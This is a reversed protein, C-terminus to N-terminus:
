PNILASQVSLTWWFWCALFGRFVSESRPCFFSYAAMTAMTAASLRQATREANAYVPVVVYKAYMTHQEHTPGGRPPHTTDTRSITHTNKRQRQQRNHRIWSTWRTGRVAAWADPGTETLDVTDSEHVCVHVCVYCVCVCLRVFSIVHSACSM